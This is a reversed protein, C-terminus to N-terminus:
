APVTVDITSYTPVSGAMLWAVTLTTKGAGLLGFTVFQSPLVGSGISAAVAPNSSAIGTILQGSPVTLTVSEAGTAALSPMSLAGMAGPSLAVTPAGAPGTTTVVVGALVTAQQAAFTQAQAAAANAARNYLYLGGVVIAAIAWSLM